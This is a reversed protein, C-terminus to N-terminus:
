HNIKNWANLDEVMEKKLGILEEDSFDTFNVLLSEGQENDSLRLCLDEEEDLRRESSGFYGQMRMWKWLPTGPYPTLFFIAHPPLNHQKCFAVTEQLTERTEGPTGIIFTAECDGFIDQSMEVAEHCKEVTTRKNLRDLIKQSGSEVGYGVLVCGADKCLGLIKRGVTDVRAGCEWSVIKNMGSFVMLECFEKVNKKNTIFIDDGMLIHEVRYNEYLYVIENFLSQADRYRYKTGMYDHYCFFCNHVLIDNAFFWDYGPISMCYVDEKESLKEISKVKHNSQKIQGQKRKIWGARYNAKHEETRKKGLNSKGVKEAWEKTIIRGKLKNSIKKKVEVSREIGYLPSEEGRKGYNPNSEGLKSLRYNEKQEPTRKKGLNREKAREAREQPSLKFVPNKEGKWKESFGSHQLIHEKHNSCLKLNTPLYNKKNEDIHHIEEGKRLERGLLREMMTRAGRLQGPYKCAVVSQGPQLNQAEVEWEKRPQFQNKYQLVMFRHDSTCDIHSGDTFHVRVLEADKRTKFIAKPKIYVIRKTKPNRTLILPTQGVLDEIKKKGDPTDLLTDGRLCNFPCGRSSLINMSKPVKEAKGDTWKAKNITSGVPNNAYIETPFLDYAPLPLKNIDKIPYRKDTSIIEEGRRYVIGPTMFRTKKQELEYFLDLATVEGEGIVCVDAGAKRLMIEPISSGLVGGVIIPIDTNYGKIEKILWKVYAYNTILGTVGVADYELSYLKSIVQDESYRHANIDLIEVDHDKELVQAIYGLGQPFCNPPAWTRVPPNILLIKM